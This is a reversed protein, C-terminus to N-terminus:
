NLILKSLIGQLGFLGLQIIVFSKLARYRSIFIWAFPKSSKYDCFAFCYLWLLQLHGLLCSCSDVVFESNDMKNLLNVYKEQHVGLLINTQVELINQAFFDDM